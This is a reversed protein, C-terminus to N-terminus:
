MCPQASRHVLTGSGSEGRGCQLFAQGVGQLCSASQSLLAGVIAQFVPEPVAL